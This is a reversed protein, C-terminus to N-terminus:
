TLFSFFQYVVARILLYICLRSLKTSSNKNYLENGNKCFYFLSVCKANCFLM